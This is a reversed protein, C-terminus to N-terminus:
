SKLRMQVTRVFSMQGMLFGPIPIMQMGKYTISVESAPSGDTGTKSTATVTIPDASCSSVGSLNPLMALDALIKTCAGAQDAATTTSSSTYEAGIRAANEVAILSYNFFGM